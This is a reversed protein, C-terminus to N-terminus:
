YDVQLPCWYKGDINGSTLKDKGQRRKSEM